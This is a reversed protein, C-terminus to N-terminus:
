HACKVQKMKFENVSTVISLTSCSMKAEHSGSFMPTTDTEMNISNM